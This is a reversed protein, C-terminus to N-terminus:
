TRRAWSRGEAGCRKFSVCSETKTLIVVAEREDEGSRFRTGTPPMWASLDEVTMGGGSNIEFEGRLDM